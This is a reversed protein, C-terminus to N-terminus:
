SREETRDLERRVRRARWVSLGVIGFLLLLSGGYALLVQVAYKGLDVM